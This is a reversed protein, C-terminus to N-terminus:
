QRKETASSDAVRPARGSEARNRGMGHGAARNGKYALYGPVALTRHPGTRGGCNPWFDDAALQKTLLQNAGDVPM